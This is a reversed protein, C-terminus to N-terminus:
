SLIRFLINKLGLNFITAFDFYFSVSLLLLFISTNLKAYFLNLLIFVLFHGRMIIKQQTDSHEKGHTVNVTHKINYTDISRHSFISNSKEWAKGTKQNFHIRKVTIVAREMPDGSQPSRRIM